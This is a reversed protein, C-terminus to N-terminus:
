KPNPPSIIIFFKTNKFEQRLKDSKNIIVITNRSLLSNYDIKGHDEEGEQVWDNVIEVERNGAVNIGERLTEQEIDLILLNIQSEEV